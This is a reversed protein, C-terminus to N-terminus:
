RPLWRYVCASALDKSVQELELFSALLFPGLHPSHLKAEFIESDKIVKQCKFATAVFRRDPSGFELNM